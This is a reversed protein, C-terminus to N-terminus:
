TVCYCSSKQRTVEPLGMHRVAQLFHNINDTHRFALGVSRYKVLDADFIKKKPVVNPAFTNALKALYVGNRLNEELETSEPLEENICEEIWV